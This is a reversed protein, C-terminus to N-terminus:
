TDKKQQRDWQFGVRPGASVLIVSDQSLVVNAEPYSDLMQQFEIDAQVKTTTEASAVQQQGKKAVISYSM